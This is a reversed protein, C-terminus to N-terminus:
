SKTNMYWCTMHWRDCKMHWTDCTVQECSSVGWTMGFWARIESELLNSLIHKPANISGCTMHWRDGTVHWKNCTVQWRDCTGTVYVGISVRSESDSWFYIINLTSISTLTHPLMKTSSLYMTSGFTSTIWIPTIGSIDFKSTIKQSMWVYKFNTVVRKISIWIARPERKRFCM